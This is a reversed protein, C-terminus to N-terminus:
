KTLRRSWFHDRISVGPYEAKLYEIQEARQRAKEGVECAYQADALSRWLCGDESWAELEACDLRFGGDPGVIIKWSDRPEDHDKSKGFWMACDTDTEFSWSLLTKM